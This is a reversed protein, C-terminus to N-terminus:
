AGVLRKWAAWPWVAPGFPGTVSLADADPAPDLAAFSDSPSLGMLVVSCASALALSSSALIGFPLVGALELAPTGSIGLVGGRTVVPPFPAEASEGDGLEFSLKLSPPAGLGENDRGGFGAAKKSVV